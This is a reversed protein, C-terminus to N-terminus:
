YDLDIADCMGVVRIRGTIMKLFWQGVAPAYGKFGNLAIYVPYEVDQVKGNVIFISGDEMCYKPGWPYKWLGFPGFQIVRTYGQEILLLIDLNFPGPILGGYCKGGIFVTYPGEEPPYDEGATVMPISVLMLLCIVGVTLEKRFKNKM